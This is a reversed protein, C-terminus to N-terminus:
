SYKENFVAICVDQWSDALHNEFVFQCDAIPRLRLSTAQLKIEFIDVCKSLPKPLYEIRARHSKCHTVISLSIRNRREDQAQRLILPSVPYARLLSAISFLLCHKYRYYDFHQYSILLYRSLYKILLLIQNLRLDMWGPEPRVSKSKVDVLYLSVGVRNWMSGFDADHSKWKM